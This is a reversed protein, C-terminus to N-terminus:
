NIKAIFWEFVSLDCKLTIRSRGPDNTETINYDADLWKGKSNLIQISLIPKDLVIDFSLEDMHDAGLNAASVLWIDGKSRVITMCQHQIEALFSFTDKSLYKILAHLWRLRSHNGFVGKAIEGSGAYVAVRGGLSNEFITSGVYYTNKADIFQSLLKAGDLELEFWEEGRQPVRNEVVGPLVEPLYKESHIRRGHNEEIVRVGIYQGFGRKCLVEAAGGDLLVGKSLIAKMEEDTPGWATTEKLVVVDGSKAADASSLFYAPIGCELLQMEWKPKIAMDHYIWGEKAHIKGAINSDNLFIVGHKKWLRLNMDAITQLKPRINKLMPAIAPEESIASGDLNSLSLTIHNAGLLQALMLVYKDNAVSRCWTTFAVSELELGFDVGDLGFKQELVEMSQEMLWYSITNYRIPVKTTTYAGLCPRTMPKHKGSLATLVQKWDRGEFSHTDPASTMLAIRTEPSVSHIQKKIWGATDVMTNNLFEMWKLRWKSPKGPCMMENVIDERSFKKGCYEAFTRLHNYCYCYYDPGNKNMGHNHMRFDDDIWVVDPKTDAWLQLMKGMIRRFESGIPCPCGLCEEGRQNKMFEWQYEDRMDLGDSNAGLLMQYNLQYSIKNQRMAPAVTNKMWEAWHQQEEANHAPMYYTGPLINVYFQVADIQVEQCFAILEDLRQNCFKEDGWEPAYPLFYRYNYVVKGKPLEYTKM